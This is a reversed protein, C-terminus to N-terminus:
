ALRLRSILARLPALSSPGTTVPRSSVLAQTIDKLVHQLTLREEQATRSLSAEQEMLEAHNTEQYPVSCPRLM